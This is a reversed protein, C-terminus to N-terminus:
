RKGSSVVVYAPVRKDGEVVVDGEARRLFMQTSPGGDFLMADRCRLENLALARVQHVDLHSEPPTAFFIVKEDRDICVGSRWDPEARLVSNSKGEVVLRPGCQTASFVNKASWEKVPVIDARGDRGVSFVSQWSVPHPPNVQKGNSVVVGLPRFREDFFNANLAFAYERGLDAATSGPRAVADIAALKPDVRVLHLDFRSASCNLMRYDIGPAAATWQQVCAIPEPEPEHRPEEAVEDRLCGACLILLFPIVLRVRMAM